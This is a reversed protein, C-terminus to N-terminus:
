DCTCASQLVHVYMRLNLVPMCDQQNLRMCMRADGHCQGRPVEGWAHQEASGGVASWCGRLLLFCGAFCAASTVGVANLGQTSDSCRRVACAACAHAGVAWCFSLGGHWTGQCVALCDGLWAKRLTPRTGAFARAGQVM